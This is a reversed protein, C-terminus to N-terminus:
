VGTIFRIARDRLHMKVQAEALRHEWRFHTVIEDMQLDVRVSCENECIHVLQHGQADLCLSLPLQEVSSGLFDAIRRGEQSEIAEHGRACPM